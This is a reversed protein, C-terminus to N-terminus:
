PVIVTPVSAVQALGLPVSGFIRAGFTNSGSRGVFIMSAKCQAAAKAVLPVVSGYTLTADAAVGAARCKELAPDIIVEQARKIEQNRRAHREELEEPTLFQYPSWELVHVLMLSADDKKARTIAYELVNSGGEEGEYAVVFIEHSM